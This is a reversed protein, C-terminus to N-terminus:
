RLAAGAAKVSIKGIHCRRTDRNSDRACLIQHAAQHDWMSMAYVEHNRFERSGRQVVYAQGQATLLQIVNASQSVIRNGEIQM